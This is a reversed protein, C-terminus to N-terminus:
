FDGAPSIYTRNVDKQGRLETDRIVDAITIAKLDREM